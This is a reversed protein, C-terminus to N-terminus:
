GCSDTMEHTPQNSGIIGANNVLGDIRGFKDAVVSLAQQVSAEHTVDMHWYEAQGGRSQINKVTERGSQDNIDLLAISAGERALLYCAAQGIGTSGGTVIIVKDLVRNM